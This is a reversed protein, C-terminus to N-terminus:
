SFLARQQSDVQYRARSFLLSSPLPLSTPVSLSLSPSLPHSHTALCPPPSPSTVNGCHPSITLSCSRTICLFVHNSLVLTLHLELSVHARRINVGTNPAQQDVHPGTHQPLPVTTAASHWRAEGKRILVTATVQNLLFNLNFSIM